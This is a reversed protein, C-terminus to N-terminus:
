GGPLPRSPTKGIIVLNHSDHSVTSAIAGAQIPFNTVFALSPPRGQAHRGVVAALAVGDPLPFIISGDQTALEIVDLRSDVLNALNIANVKIAGTGEAKPMFSDVSLGAPLRMTNELLPPVPEEIPSILSGDEVRLDGGTIM